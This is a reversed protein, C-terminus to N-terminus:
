KIFLAVILGADEFPTIFPIWDNEAGRKRAFKVYDRPAYLKTPLACPRFGLCRARTGTAVM